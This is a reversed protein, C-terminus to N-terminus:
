DEMDKQAETMINTLRGAIYEVVPMIQEYSMRNPGIIGIYGRYKDAGSFKAAILTDFELESYGTDAGFVAGVNGKINKLISIIPDRQKILALIRRAKDKDGCINYLANEGKLTVDAEEIESATEFVTSLLPMLELSHLGAGAIVNQMYAKNLENIPKGKIRREIISHFHIELEPTFGKGQRFIRSRTRGDNTIVLLMVSSKGIPLLEIRKIVPPKETILCSIAPLGIIHTLIQAAAVPIGEPECRFNDLSNDIFATIEKSPDAHKVLSDVYFRYGNSTPVRGASTHPQHLLGLECLESMENRLTASSPANELLATLNKSGIPEGTEIYARVIAKLVAQKRPTLDM